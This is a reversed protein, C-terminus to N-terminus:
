YVSVSYATFLEVVTLRKFRSEQRIQIRVPTQRVMEYFHLFYGTLRSWRTHKHNSINIYLAANAGRVGVTLTHRVGALTQCPEVGARGLAGDELHGSSPIRGQCAKAEKKIAQLFSKVSLTDM